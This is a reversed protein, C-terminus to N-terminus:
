VILSHKLNEDMWTGHVEFAYEETTQVDKFILDAGGMFRFYYEHKSHEPLIRVLNKIPVIEVRSTGNIGVKHFIISEMQPLLDMRVVFLRSASVMLPQYLFGLGAYLIAPIWVPSKFFVVLPVIIDFSRIRPLYKGANKSYFLLLSNDTIKCNLVSDIESKRDLSRSLLSLIAPSQLISLRSFLSVMSYNKGFNKSGLELKTWNDSIWIAFRNFPGIKSM